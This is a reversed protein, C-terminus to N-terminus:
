SPRDSPVSPNQNVPQVPSAPNEPPAATVPPAATESSTSGAAPENEAPLPTQTYVVPAERLSDHKQKILDHLLIGLRDFDPLPKNIVHDVGFEQKLQDIEEDGLVFATM